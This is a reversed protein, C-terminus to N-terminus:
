GSIGPEVIVKENVKQLTLRFYQLEVFEVQGFNPTIQGFLYVAIM